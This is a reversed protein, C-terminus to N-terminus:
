LGRMPVTRPTLIPLGSFAFWLLIFGGACTRKGTPRSPPILLDITAAALAPFPGTSSFTLTQMSQPDLVQLSLHSDQPPDVASAPTQLAQPESNTSGWDVDQGEHPDRRESLEFNTTSKLDSSSSARPFTLTSTSSTFPTLDRVLLCLTGSSSTFPTRLAESPSYTYLSPVTLNSTVM